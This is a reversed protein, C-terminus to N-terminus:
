RRRCTEARRVHKEISALHAALQIVADDVASPSVRGKFVPAPTTAYM